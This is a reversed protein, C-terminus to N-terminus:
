HILDAVADLVTSPAVLRLCEHGYPCIRSYCLRCPVEHSLLRHPSKWPGWQAPSHTEAFLIVAPTKIAAAIHMPGTHNTVILDANEVLACYAPFPLMGALNHAADRTDPRMHRHIRGVLEREEDVGTLLLIAGLKAVLLDAITVYQDWPYMRSPMTAGPHLVILPHHRSVGINELVEQVYVEADVPIQLVLDSHETTLGLAGVLNLGREVEHMMQEPYKHRTTLMSGSGDISGAVRLPIDALYCLYAAPLASQRYSTFIIAGDFRREKLLAIMRQERQSDHPIKMWPDVWPAQYVIIDDIDPTLRGVSAGVPSALLSLMADPLSDKIARFAPTALLVDGLNDLRVALVRRVSRWEEIVSERSM